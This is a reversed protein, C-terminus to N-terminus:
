FGTAAPFDSKSDVDFLIGGTVAGATHTGVSVYQVAVYRQSTKLIAADLLNAGVVLSAELLIPGSFIVTPSSMDANPSQIINAQLSTGGTFATVVEAFLRIIKGRGIDRVVTMDDNNTSLQTGSTLAQSSSFQTQADLIM